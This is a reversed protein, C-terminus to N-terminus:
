HLHKKHRARRERLRMRAQYQPTAPDANRFYRDLDEEQEKANWLRIEGSLLKEEFEKQLAWRKEHYIDSKKSEAEVLRKWQKPSKQSPNRHLEPNGSYFPFGHARCYHEQNQYAKVEKVILTPAPTPAPASVPAAPTEVPAPTTAKIEAARKAIQAEEWCEPCEFTEMWAIESEAQKGTLLVTTTHGCTHTATYKAM